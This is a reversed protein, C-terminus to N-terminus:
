QILIYPFLIIGIYFCDIIVSLKNMFIKDFSIIDRNFMNMKNM